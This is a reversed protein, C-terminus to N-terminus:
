PAAVAAAALSLRPVSAPAASTPLESDPESDMAIGAQAPTSVSEGASGGVDAAAGPGADTCLRAATAAASIRNVTM